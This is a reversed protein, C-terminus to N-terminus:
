PRALMARVQRGDLRRNRELAAAIREFAARRAALVDFVQGILQGAHPEPAQGRKDAAAAAILRATALEHANAGKAMHEGLAVAEGAWGAALIRARREDDAPDTSTTVEWATGANTYGEWWDGNKWIRVSQVRDGEVHHLLVHGAEHLAADRRDSRLAAEKGQEEIAQEVIQAAMAEVLDSHSCNDVWAPHSEPGRKRSGAPAPSNAKM